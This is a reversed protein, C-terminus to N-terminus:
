FKVKIAKGVDFTIEVKKGKGTIEIKHPTTKVDSFQPEVTKYTKYSIIEERGTSPNTKYIPDDDINKTVVVKYKGIPVGKYGYTSVAVKGEVDTIALSKYKTNNQDTEETAALEVSAGEL